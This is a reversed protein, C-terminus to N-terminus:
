RSLVSPESSEIRSGMGSCGRVDEVPHRRNRAKRCSPQVEPCSLVWWFNYRDFLNTSPFRLPGDLNTSVPWRKVSICCKKLLITALQEGREIGTRNCIVVITERDEVAESTEVTMGSVSALQELGSGAHNASVAPREWLPRVREAWFNINTMDLQSDPSSGSNLWACLVVLIRANKQIAFEALECDLFPDGGMSSPFPNLDMCIGFSISQLPSSPLEFHAFGNGSSM